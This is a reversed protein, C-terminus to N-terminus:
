LNYIQERLNNITNNMHRLRNEQEIFKEEYLVKVDQNREYKRELLIKAVLKEKEWKMM